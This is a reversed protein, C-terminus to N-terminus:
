VTLGSSTPFGALREWYLLVPHEREKLGLWLSDIVDEDALGSVSCGGAHGAEQCVGVKQFALVGKSWKMLDREKM